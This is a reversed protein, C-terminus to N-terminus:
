SFSADRLYREMGCFSDKDVPFRSTLPVLHNPSFPGFIHLTRNQVAVFPPKWEASYRGSPHRSLVLHRVAQFNALRSYDGPLLMGLNEDINLLSQGWIYTNTTAPLALHSLFRAIVTTAPFRGINLERLHELNVIRSAHTTPYDATNDKTPGASDLSLEELLPSADLFDLFDSTSPRSFDYQNSLCLHTLKTFYGAPWSTYYDISVKTLKPMIGGFLPPLIAQDVSPSGVGPLLTLAELLPGPCKQFYPLLEERYGGWCHLERLHSGQSAIQRILSDSVRDTNPIFVSLPAAGSRKLFTEPRFLTDIASWLMPSTAVIGRWHRCVQLLDMWRYDSRSPVEYEFSPCFSQPQEQLLRFIEALLEPPLRHVPLLSNRYGKLSAAARQLKHEEADLESLSLGALMSSRKSQYPAYLM